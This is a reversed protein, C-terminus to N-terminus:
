SVFQVQCYNLLHTYLRMNRMIVCYLGASLLGAVVHLVFCAIIFKCACSFFAMGIKGGTTRLIGSRMWDASCDLRRLSFLRPSQEAKKNEGLHPTVYDLIISFPYSAFAINLCTQCM